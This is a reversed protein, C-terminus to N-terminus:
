PATRARKSKPPSEPAVSVVDDVLKLWDHFEEPSRFYEKEAEGDLTVTCGFAGGDRTRFLSVLAGGQVISAIYESATADLLAGIDVNPGRRSSPLLPM